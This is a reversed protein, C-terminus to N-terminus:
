ETCRVPARSASRRSDTRCPPPSANRGEAKLSADGQPSGPGPLWPRPNPSFHRALDASPTVSRRQMEQQLKPLERVAGAKLLARALRDLLQADGRTRYLLYEHFLPVVDSYEKSRLCYQLLLDYVKASPRLGRERMEEHCQRAFAMGKVPLFAELVAAYLPPDWVVWTDQQLLALVQDCYGHSDAAAFGLLLTTYTASDPRCHPRKKAMQRMRIFHPWAQDMRKARVLGRFLSNFLATCWPIRRDEQVVDLLRSVEMPNAEFTSFFHSYFQLSLDRFDLVSSVVSRHDAASQRTPDTNSDEAPLEAPPKVPGESIQSSVFKHVNMALGVKGSGAFVKMIDVMSRPPIRHKYRLFLNELTLVDRAAVAKSLSRHVGKWLSAM